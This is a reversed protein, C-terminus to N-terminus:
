VSWLSLATFKSQRTKPQLAKYYQLHNCLNRLFTIGVYDPHFTKESSPTINRESVDIVCSVEVRHWCGFFLILLLLSDGHSVLTM